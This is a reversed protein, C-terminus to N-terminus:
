PTEEDLLSAFAVWDGQMAIAHGPPEAWYVANHEAALQRIRELENRRIHPEAAELLALVSKRTIATYGLEDIRNFAAALAEPPVCDGAACWTQATV